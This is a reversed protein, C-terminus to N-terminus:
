AKINLVALADKINGTGCCYDCLEMPHVLFGENNECNICFSYDCDCKVPKRNSLGSGKCVLCINPDDKKDRDTM